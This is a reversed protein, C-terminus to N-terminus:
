ARAVSRGDTGLARAVEERVVQRLLSAEPRIGLKRDVKSKLWRRKGRPATTPLPEPVIGADLLAPIENPSCEFLACIDLTLYVEPGLDRTPQM